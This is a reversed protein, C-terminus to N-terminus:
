EETPSQRGRGTGIKETIEAIDVIKIDFKISSGKARMETYGNNLGGVTCSM